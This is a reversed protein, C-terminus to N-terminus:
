PLTRALRFGNYNAGKAPNSFTRLNLHDDGEEEEFYYPGGCLVMYPKWVEDQDSSWEGVNGIMDYLGYGNPKKLGVAHTKDISNYKYWAVADLDDSECYENDSGGKCAYEWEAESPLRYQKGTKANLKQLFVQVDDWSVQEVPCNNGCKSFYSPNNGMVAKWQGQTVEYKGIEYNKGPIVVMQIKPGGQDAAHVASSLCTALMATAFLYKLKM